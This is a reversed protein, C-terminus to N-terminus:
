ISSLERKCCPCKTTNSTIRKVGSGLNYIDFVINNKSLFEILAKADSNSQITVDFSNGAIADNAAKTIDSKESTLLDLYWGYRIRVPRFLFYVDLDRYYDSYETGSFKITYDPEKAIYSM